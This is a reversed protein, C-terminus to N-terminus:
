QMGPLNQQARMLMMLLTGRAHEVISDYDQTNEAHTISIKEGDMDYGIILFSNLYEGVVSELITMDRVMINGEKQQRYAFHKMARQFSEQLEPDINEVNVLKGKTLVTTKISKSRKPEGLQLIDELAKPKKNKSVKKTSKKLPKEM